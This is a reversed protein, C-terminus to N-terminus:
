TFYIKSKSPVYIFYNSRERIIKKKEIESLEKDNVLELEVLDELKKIIEVARPHDFRSNPPHNDAM